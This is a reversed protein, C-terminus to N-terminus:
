EDIGRQRLAVRLDSTGRAILHRATQYTWGFMEMIDRVDFGALHARVAQQRNPALTAMADDIARRRESAELQRHPDGTSAPAAVDELPTGEAVRAQERKVLRLTERIAARFIYSAPQTITQGRQLQQWLGVMVAQHVDDELGQARAGAVRRVARTIVGAYASVLREIERDPEM